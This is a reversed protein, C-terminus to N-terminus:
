CRTPHEGQPYKEPKLKPPLTSGARKGGGRNYVTSSNLQSPTNEGGKETLVVTVAERKICPQDSVSKEPM